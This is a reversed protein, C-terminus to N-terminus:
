QILRVSHTSLQILVKRKKQPESGAVHMVKFRFVKLEGIARM